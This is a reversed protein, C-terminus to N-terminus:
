EEKKLLNEYHILKEIMNLVYDPPKRDGHEWCIWTDAPIGFLAAFKRQSLGTSARMKKTRESATM